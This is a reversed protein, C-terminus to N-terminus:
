PHFRYNNLYQNKDKKEKIIFLYQISDAICIRIRTKLMSSTFIWLIYVEYKDYIKEFSLYLIQYPNPYM